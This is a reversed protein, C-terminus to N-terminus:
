SAIADWYPRIVRSMRLQTAQHWLEDVTGKRLRRYDRLAEVAVDVGIRNRFKFCDVVTRAPSTVRVAVGEIRHTDIGSMLAAGSIRVVRVPSVDIRPIAARRDVALWVERPHQTGLGHVRLATLLCVIGKPVRKAVEALTHHETPATGATAYLGRGLRTLHGAQTLRRVQEPHLGLAKAEKLRFIGKNRIARPVPPM